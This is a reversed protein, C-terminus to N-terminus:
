DIVYSFSAWCSRQLREPSELFRTSIFTKFVTELTRKEQPLSNMMKSLFFTRKANQSPVLCMYYSTEPNKEMMKAQPKKKKKTPISASQSETNRGTCDQTFRFLEIPSCPTDRQITTPRLGMEAQQPLDREHYGAETGRRPYLLMPQDTVFLIMADEGGPFHRAQWM